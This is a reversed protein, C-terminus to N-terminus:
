STLVPPRDGLRRNKKGEAATKTLNSKKKPDQVVGAGLSRRKSVLQKYYRDKKKTKM